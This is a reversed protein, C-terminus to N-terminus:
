DSLELLYGFWLWWAFLELLILPLWGCLLIYVYHRGVLLTTISMLLPIVLFVIPAADFVIHWMQWSTARGEDAAYSAKGSADALYTFVTGTEAPGWQTCAFSLMVM